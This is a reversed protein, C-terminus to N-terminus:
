KTKYKKLFKKIYKILRKFYGMIKPKILILNTCLELVRRFDEVEDEDEPLLDYKVLIFNILNELIIPLQKKSVYSENLNNYCTTVIALFEPIDNINIKEDKLIEKIHGEINNILKENNIIKNKITDLNDKPM